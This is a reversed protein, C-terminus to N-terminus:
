VSMFGRRPRLRQKERIMELVHAMGMRSKVTNDTFKKLGFGEIRESLWGFKSIIRAETKVKTCENNHSDVRFTQWEEVQMKRVHTINKTRTVMTKTHPDVISEELIYAEPTRILGIGWSPVKGKKLILRTTRLMGSTPDVHRDIVDVSLVHSAFPNPYRMWFALTVIDWPATYSIQLKEFHEDVVNNKELVVLYRGTTDLNTKFVGHTLTDLSFPIDVKVNKAGEPLMVRVQVKDYVTQTFASLFPVNLIYRGSKSHYRVFDSLPVNYGHNWTYNWGGYLPYRPKFDFVSRDRENRFTSTSVNGVEDRYYVDSARPPLLLQLDRTMITDHHGYMTTQQYELRSFQGKLRAGDHTLNFHEEIALNGGWHSVELDRRFSKVTFIPKQFGYHIKLEDYADPAINNYTGYTITKDNRNVKNERQTYSLLTSSALKVNTKQKESLYASSAYQNGEYLLYQRGTQPIEHPVTTLIHTFATKIIVTIKEQPEVRRDFTIKYYQIHNISDFEAKEVDFVVDTKREKAEIWALHKDLKEKVPFYYEGILDDHVNQAIIVTTERVIPSTLDITRLINSNRWYQPVNVPTSTASSSFVAACVILVITCTLSYISFLRMQTLYICLFRSRFSPSVRLRVKKRPTVNNTSAVNLM